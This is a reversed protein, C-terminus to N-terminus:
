SQNWGMSGCKAGREHVHYTCRFWTAAQNRYSTTDVPLGTARELMTETSFKGFWGDSSLEDKKMDDSMEFCQHHANYFVVLKRLPSDNSSETSVHRLTSTSMKDGAAMKAIILDIARNQLMPIIRLAAFCWLKALTDYDFNKYEHRLIAAPATM